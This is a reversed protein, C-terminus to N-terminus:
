YCGNEWRNFLFLFFDKLLYCSSFNFLDYLEKGDNIVCLQQVSFLYQGQINYRFFAKGVM